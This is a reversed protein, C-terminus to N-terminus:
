KAIDTNQQKHQQQEQQRLRYNRWRIASAKNLGQLMETRQAQTMTSITNARKVNDLMQARAEPLMLHFRYSQSISMQQLSKKSYIGTKGKNWPARGVNVNKWREIQAESIERRGSAYAKRLSLSIRNRRKRELKETKRRGPTMDTDSTILLKKVIETSEKQYPPTYEPFHLRGWKIVLPYNHKTRSFGLFHDTVFNCKLIYGFTDKIKIILKKHMKTM